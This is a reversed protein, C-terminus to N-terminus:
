CVIEDLQALLNRQAVERSLARGEWFLEASKVAPKPADVAVGPSLTPGLILRLAEEIRSFRFASVDLGLEECQDEIASVLAGLARNKGAGSNNNRVKQPATVCDAIATASPWPGSGESDSQVGQLFGVAMARRRWERLIRHVGTKSILYRDSIRQVSWGSIFYLQIIRRGVDGGERSGLWMVQSPFTVVNSQIAERLVANSCSSLFELDNRSGNASPFELPVGNPREGASAPPAKRVLDEPNMSSLPIRGRDALVKANARQVPM